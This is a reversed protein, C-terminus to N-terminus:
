SRAPTSSGCAASPRADAPVTWPTPRWTGPDLAGPPLAGADATPIPSADDIGAEAVPDAHSADPMAAISTPGQSACAALFLVSAALSGLSTGRGFSSLHIM